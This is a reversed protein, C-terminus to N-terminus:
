ECKQARTIEWVPLAKDDDTHGDTRKSTNAIAVTFSENQLTYLYMAREDEPLEMYEDPSIQVFEIATQGICWAFIKESDYFSCQLGSSQDNVVYGCLNHFLLVKLSNGDIHDLRVRCIHTRNTSHPIDSLLSLNHLCTSNLLAPLLSLNVVKSGPEKDIWLVEPINKSSLTCTLGSIYVMHGVGVRGLSRVPCPRLPAHTDRHRGRPRQTLVSGHAAATCHVPPGLGVPSRAGGSAPARSCPSAVPSGLASTTAREATLSSPWLGSPPARSAPTSVLARRLGFHRVAAHRRALPCPPHWPGAVLFIFVRPKQTKGGGILNKQTKAM